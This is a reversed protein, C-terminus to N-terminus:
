NVQCLYEAEQYEGEELLQRVFKATEKPYRTWFSKDLLQTYLNLLEPYTDVDSCRDVLGYSLEGHTQIAEVTAQFVGYKGWLIDGFLFPHPKRNGMLYYGGDESPGIVIDNKELTKIAKIFVEPQLIPLDSGLIIQKDNGDQYAFQLANYMKDGLNVGKQPFMKFEKPILGKFMEKTGKPTYTLYLNIDEREEAVMLLMRSIDYLFAKHLRACEEPKLHTQLRTKTQGPIPARSMLIIGVSM